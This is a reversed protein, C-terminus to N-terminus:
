VKQITARDEDRTIAETNLQGMAEKFTAATAINEQTANLTINTHPEQVRTGHAQNTTNRIRNSRQIAQRTQNSRHRRPLASV